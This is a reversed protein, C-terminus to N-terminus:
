VGHPDGDDATSTEPLKRTKCLNRSQVDGSRPALGGGRNGNKVVLARGIALINSNGEQATVTKVMLNSRVLHGSAGVNSSQSRNAYSGNDGKRCDSAQLLVDLRAVENNWVLNNVPGLTDSRKCEKLSASNSMNGETVWEILANGLHHPSASVAQLSFSDHQM